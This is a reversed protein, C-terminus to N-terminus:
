LSIPNKKTKLMLLGDIRRLKDGNISFIGKYQAQYGFQSKKSQTNLWMIRGVLYSVSYDIWNSFIEQTQEVIEKLYQYTTEEDIYGASYALRVVFAILELYWAAESEIEDFAKKWTDKQEPFTHLTVTIMENVLPLTLVDSLIRYDLPDRALGLYNEVAIKVGEKDNVEYKNRLIVKAQKKADRYKLQRGSLRQPGDDYLCGVVLWRQKEKEVVKNRKLLLRIFLVGEVAIVIILILLWFTRPDM